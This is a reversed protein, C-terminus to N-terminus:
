WASSLQPTSKTLDRAITQEKKGGKKKRLITSLLGEGSVGRVGGGPDVELRLPLDLELRDEECWALRRVVEVLVVVTLRDVSCNNDTSHQAKSYLYQEQVVSPPPKFGVRRDISHKNSDYSTVRDCYRCWLFLLAPELEVNALYKDGVLKVLQQGAVQVEDPSHHVRIVEGEVDAALRELFM